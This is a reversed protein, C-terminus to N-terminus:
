IPVAGNALNGTNFSDTKEIGSLHKLQAMITPSKEQQLLKFWFVVLNERSIDNGSFGKPHLLYSEFMPKLQFVKEQFNNKGLM